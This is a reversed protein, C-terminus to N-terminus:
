EFYVVTAGDGGEGREGPRYRKVQPHRRLTDRVAAKMAGTGHGHVIRVWPLGSLVADDLYADLRELGDEVRLGRLHLEIPLDVPASAARKLHVAESTVAPAPASAVPELDRLPVTLRLRGLQVDVEDGKVAMVEGVQNFSLVRVQRGPVLDAPALRVVAGPGPERVDLAAAVVDLGGAAEAVAARTTASEAQRLLRQVAERALAL